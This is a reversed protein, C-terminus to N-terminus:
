SFHQTAFTAESSKRPASQKVTARTALAQDPDLRSPPTRRMTNDMVTPIREVGAPSVPRHDPQGTRGV